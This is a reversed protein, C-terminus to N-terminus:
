IAWIAPLVVVTSNSLVVWSASDQGMALCSLTRRTSFDMASRRAMLRMARPTPLNTERPELERMRAFALSSMVWPFNASAMGRKRM